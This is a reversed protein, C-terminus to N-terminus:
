KIMQRLAAIREQIPPHTEFLGSLFQKTTGFPSAIYLHATANNAHKIPQNEVAIKELANALGEPYRTLLAGSADALYERRRSIALQILTAIIPSLILLVVGILILVIKFRGDGESQNKRGGWFSIRLFWNSLLAVLGVLIIVVTMLLIDYNKVHSLEHAIVGELEDKQLKEVAGSTIAISANQPNRGTAFANIASDSILYVKPTPIGATIALNEVLHYVYPNVSDNIPGQAGATWLAVKDGQFYSFLSTAVSIIAAIILGSYGLDTLQSFVWGLFIVLAIFIAMIIVTRRKNSDIQNYM